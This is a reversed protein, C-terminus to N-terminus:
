PYTNFGSLDVTQATYVGSANLTAMASNISSIYDGYWFSCVSGYYATHGLPVLTGNIGCFAPSGSDGGTSMVGDSSVKQYPRRTDSTGYPNSATGGLSAPMVWRKDAGADYTNYHRTWLNIDHRGGDITADPLYTKWNSPLLKCLTGAWVTASYEVVIEGSISVWKGVSSSSGHGRWTLFHHPSIWARWQALGGAGVLLEDLVDLPLATFGAKAQARILNGTNVSSGTLAFGENFALAHARQTQPGATVGALAAVQQDYLYKRLSGTARGTVRDYLTQGGVTSIVQTILRDGTQGRVRITCTGDSVRSVRGLADVTCVAPTDSSFAVPRNASSNVVALNSKDVTGSTTRAAYTLDKITTTIASDTGFTEPSPILSLSYDDEPSWGRLRPASSDFVINM